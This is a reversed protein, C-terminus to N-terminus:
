RGPPTEPPFSATGHFILTFNQLNHVQLFFEVLQLDELPDAGGEVFILHDGDDTGAAAALGGEEAAQIQQLLGGGALDEKVARVDAGDLALGNIVATLPHAHHELLEVQEVVHVHHVVEGSGRHANLPHGLGVCLLLGQLKQCLHTQGVPGVGIGALKGASLLLSDGNHTGQHHVRLDHQEVLRGTSQVRLHDTLHQVHHLIQRLATHGHDHHSM